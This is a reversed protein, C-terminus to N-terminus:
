RAEEAHSHTASHQDTVTPDATGCSPRSTEADVMFGLFHGSRRSVHHYVLLDRRCGTCAVVDDVQASARTVTRCHACFIELVPRHPAPTTVTVIEIEDDELGANLAVARLALAAGADAIIHVRVGVVADSLATALLPTVSAVDGHLRTTGHPLRAQYRALLDAVDGVGVLVYSSGTPEPTTLDSTGGPRAWVPVSSYALQSV